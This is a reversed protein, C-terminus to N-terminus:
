ELDLYNRGYRRMFDERTHNKEYETQGIRHLHQMFYKNHHVGEPSENHHNHCLWVKLGDAESWKRNSGGFIHHCELNTTRRCVFCEKEHQIISDM